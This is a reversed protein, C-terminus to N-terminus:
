YAQIFANFPHLITALNPIFRGYYNVLGLFLQLQMVNTPTPADAIAETKSRCVCIGEKSIHHGLYEFALLLLNCKEQKLQVDQQELQDSVQELSRLLSGDEKGTVLINDIYCIVGPNGQIVTDMLKLLIEQASAVNFSHCTYSYLGQHTNITLYQM